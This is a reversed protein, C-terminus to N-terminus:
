DYDEDEEKQPFFMPAFVRVMMNQFMGPRMVFIAAVLMYVVGVIVAAWVWSHLWLQLLWIFVGSFAMLALNLLALALLLGIARGIVSSLGEVASLKAGDLRLEAWRRLDHTVREHLESM